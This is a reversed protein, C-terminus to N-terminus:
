RCTTNVCRAVHLKQLGYMVLMVPTMVYMGLNLGILAVGYVLVHAESGADVHDMLFLSMLMPTIYLRVADRFAPNEREYDAVHPSFSYYITNFMDLFAKGSETSAIKDDRIERLHQVHHSMESGFAATAVLCGGAADDMSNEQAADNNQETVDRVPPEADSSEVDKVSIPVSTDTGLIEIVHGNSSGGVFSIVFLTIESNSRTTANHIVGDLYVTLDGSLLDKPVVVEGMSDSISGGTRMFLQKQGADFFYDVIDFNSTVVVEFIQGGARIDLRNVLGTSDSLFQAHTVPLTM